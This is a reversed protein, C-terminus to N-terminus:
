DWFRIGQSGEEKRRYLFWHYRFIVTETWRPPTNRFDIEGIKKTVPVHTKRDFGNDIHIQTISSDSREYIWKEFQRLDSTISTDLYYTKKGCFNFKHLSRRKSISWQMIANKDKPYVPILYIRM